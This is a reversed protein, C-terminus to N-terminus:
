RSKLKHQKYSTYAATFPDQWQWILVAWGLTLVGALILLTGLIRVTRRM